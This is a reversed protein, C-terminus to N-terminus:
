IDDDANIDRARQSVAPNHKPIVVEEDMSRARGFDTHRQQSQAPQGGTAVGSAMGRGSMPRRDVLRPPLDPTSFRRLCVVTSNLATEGIVERRFREHEEEPIDEGAEYVICEGVATQELRDLRKLLASRAM